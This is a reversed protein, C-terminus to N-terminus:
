AFFIPTSVSLNISDCGSVPSCASSFTSVKTRDFAISTIAAATYFGIGPLTQLEEFDSPMIAQYRDVLVNAAKYLNRARSYYGLGEWYKLVDDQDASALAKITPFRKIFREFYPIVTVVQTQQLMIESVWTHYPSPNRRWPMERQHKSFWTLLSRVWPTELSM